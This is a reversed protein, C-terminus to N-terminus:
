LPQSVYVRPYCYSKAKHTCRCDSYGNKETSDFHLRRARRRMELSLLHQAFATDTSYLCLGKMRKWTQTTSKRRYIYETTNKAGNTSAKGRNESSKTFSAPSLLRRGAGFRKGGRRRSSGNEQSSKLKGSWNWEKQMSSGNEQSSKLKGSWNWEKQMSPM